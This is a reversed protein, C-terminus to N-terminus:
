LRDQRPILVERIILIIAAAVPIAVLAGLVGALAGGCLAAIVAVSGSVSVARAMVRPQIVYNEFQQYLVYYILVVLATSWSQFLTVVVIIIAGITAGILPILGFLAAVVALIAPFPVGVILLMFYCCVGNISAIIVQGSVYRGINNTIQDGILRTRTRRSRPALRYIWAKTVPLSAQFYLTLVLITVVSFVGSVVAKGVGFVGGLVASITKADGLKEQVEGTIKDALHFKANMDQIFQSNIITNVYDPTANVLATSQQVITPVISSIFAAVAGILILDVLVIALPRPIKHRALWAIIPELGLAIFLAGVILTIVGSVQSVLHWLGIALLVGIAGVFGFYLPNSANFPVGLQGLQPPPVVDPDAVSPDNRVASEEGQM